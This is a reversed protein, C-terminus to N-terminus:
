YSWRLRWKRWSWLTACGISTTRRRHRHAHRIQARYQSRCAVGALRPCAWLHRRHRTLRAPHLGAGRCRTSHQQHASHKASRDPHASRNGMARHALRVSRRLGALLVSETLLQRIIRARSAGVSRALSNGERAGVRARPSSQRCQCERDAACLRGRRVLRLSRPASM